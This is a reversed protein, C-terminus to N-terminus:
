KGTGSNATPLPAVVIGDRKKTLAAITTESRQGEPLSSAYAIAEDMTRRASALDGKGAFADSRAQYSRLKRPGYAKALARDTAALADDWRKMANYAVALRAPPNYDDPLAKESAELMPVALEPKGLELYAALRHSDFVAREDATKARTAAQDLFASWAQAAAKAGSEDKADTRADMLTSLMGSRDDDALTIKPNALDQRTLAEYKAIADARGPADAPLALAAALASVAMSAGSTSEGLVPLAKEALALVDANRETTSLAYLTAEAVRPYQPDKPDLAPWAALYADGAAKYDAQGYLRDASALAAKAAEAGAGGAIALQGDDLFGQLQAITMGGVWRRAVSEDKSDVVFFTPLANAPFKAKIAANKPNEVDMMFYVFEGARRKLSPDTLVFAKMSRCTHCWTAWADVFLPVNRARAEALAADYDDAHFPVALVHAAQKAPAGTAMAKASATGASLVLLSALLLAVLTPTPKPKM